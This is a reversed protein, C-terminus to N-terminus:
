AEIQAHAAAHEPSLAYLADLFHTFFTGPGVQDGSARDGAEAMVAMAATAGTFDDLGAKRAGAICAATIATSTCGMGTIRTMMPSGGCVKALRMGDTILDQEGSVSVVCQYRQAINRAADLAAESGLLSDVGKTSSDTGNLAVIESANGRVVCPSVEELLLRATNTRLRSAGAGVPDLVVPVGYEWAMNGAYRMSEIWKFDPTGINLVLAASLQIMEDLEERDHAMIPSAGFALLANATTHMVVLNTINHVLPSLERTACIVDRIQDAFTHPSTSITNM